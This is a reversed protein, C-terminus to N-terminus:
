SGVPMPTSPVASSTSRTPSPSRSPWGRTTSWRSGSRRKGPSTADAGGGRGGRLALPRAGAGPDPGGSRLPVQGAQSLGRHRLGGPPVGARLDAPSRAAVGARSRPVRPYGGPVRHQRDRRASGPGACTALDRLVRQLTSYDCHDGHAPTQVGVFICAAEAVRGLETSAALRGEAVAKAFLTDAGREPVVSAGGRWRPRGEARRHGGGPLAPGQRSLCRARQRGHQRHRRRGSGVAPDDHDRILVEQGSRGQQGPVVRHDQGARRAPIDAADLRPAAEHAHRRAGQGDPRRAQEHEVRDRGTFGTLEQILEALERISIGVGPAINMPTLDDYREAALLIAEACDEVYLVRARAQRDGVGGRTPRNELVAEVFKRVLAAAVHSRDPNYSDGPGYLNTLILHISDMGYQKKYAWGQVSMMKKTLGYNWVTEHPPGDWLNEEKLLNELYGPLLVGHRDARGEQRRRPARGGDRQRGHRPERLLDAGPLAPQDLHRRLVRRQPRRHGAPFGAHVAPLGRAQRPQVRPQASRRAGEGPGRLRAVLQRGLFGSGGTVVVRKDAWFDM